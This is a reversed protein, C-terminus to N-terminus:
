LVKTLSTEYIMRENSFCTYVRLDKFVQTKVVATTCKYYM